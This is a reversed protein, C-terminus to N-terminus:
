GVHAARQVLWVFALTAIAASGWPMVASRYFRGSRLAYLVPMVALVVAMQGAEIGSNFALLSIVRAGHPLGMDALVSAFGFGHLLGFAFAIRARSETVLPFVNNLAAIVISAAIVSETLRSPLRVVDLAALTLTLSHALTFATVVKFISVLAPRVELVPEWQGGKRMLVAPLLLSLLFLLHDIGSLIHWVGAHFYEVFARWRAPAFVSFAAQPAGGGLVGTQTADGAALTLLGRHSSDIGEMVTYRISLERVAVPCRARFPLWAYSGDVRDNVQMAQFTLACANNQAMFAMHTELYRVVQPEAARLEGWTVRGDRNADVGVALEADRIAFEVSGTLEHGRVVAALFGNSAVHACASGAAILSLVLGALSARGRAAM